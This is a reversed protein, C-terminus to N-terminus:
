AGKVQGAMTVGTHPHVHAAISIRPRNSSYVCCSSSSAQSTIAQSTCCAQLVPLTPMIPMEHPPEVRQLDGCQAGLSQVGDDGQARGVVAIGVVDM